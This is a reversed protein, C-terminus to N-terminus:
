KLGLNIMNKEFLKSHLQDFSNGWLMKGSSRIQKALRIGETDCKKIDATILDPNKDIATKRALAPAKSITIKEGSIKGDVEETMFFAVSMMASRSLYAKTAGENNNLQQLQAMYMYMFDCYGLTAGAPTITTQGFASDCLLVFVLSTVNIKM